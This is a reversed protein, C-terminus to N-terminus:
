DNLRKQEDRAESELRQHRFKTVRSEVDVEPVSSAEKLIPYWKQSGLDLQQFGTFFGDQHADCPMAHCPGPAVGAAGEPRGAGAGAVAAAAGPDERASRSAWQSDFVDGVGVRQQLAYGSGLRHDYVHRPGRPPIDHERASTSRTATSKGDGNEHVPCGSAAAAAKAKVFAPLAEDDFLANEPRGRVGLTKVQSSTERHRLQDAQLELCIEPLSLVVRYKQTRVIDRSASWSPSKVPTSFNPGLNSEFRACQRAFM